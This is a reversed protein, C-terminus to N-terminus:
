PQTDLGGILNAATTGTAYVKKAFWPIVSGAQAGVFTLDTGAPTQIKVDGGVGVYIGRVPKSLNASNDPTIALGDRAAGSYIATM